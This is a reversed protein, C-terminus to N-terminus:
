TTHFMFIVATKIELENKLKKFYQKSLESLISTKILFIHVHFINVYRTMPLSFSDKGETKQFRSLHQKHMEQPFLVKKLTLFIIVKACKYSHEFPVHNDYQSFNRGQEQAM